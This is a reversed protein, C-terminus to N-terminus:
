LPSLHSSKRICGAPEGKIREEEEESNNGLDGCGGESGATRASELVTLDRAEQEKKDKEQSVHRKERRNM